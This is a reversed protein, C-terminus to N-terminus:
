SAIEKISLRFNGLTSAIVQPQKPVIHLGRVYNKYIAHQAIAKMKTHSEMTFRLITDKYLQAAAM